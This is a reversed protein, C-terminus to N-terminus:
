ASNSLSFQCILSFETLANRRSTSSIGHTFRWHVHVATSFKHITYNYNYMIYNNYRVCIPSSAWTYSYALLINRKFVGCACTSCEHDTDIMRCNSLLIIAFQLGFKIDCKKFKLTCLM